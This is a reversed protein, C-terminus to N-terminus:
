QITLRMIYFCKWSFLSKKVRRCLTPLVVTEGMGGGIPLRNAHRDLCPLLFGAADGTVASLASAILLIIVLPNRFKSLFQLLLAQKKDTHILNPGFQALRASAETSSLGDPSSDLHELLTAIPVQWFQSEVKVKVTSLPM